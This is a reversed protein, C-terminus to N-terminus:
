QLLRRRFRFKAGQKARKDDIGNLLPLLAKGFSFSASELARAIDDAQFGIEQAAQAAFDESRIIKRQTAVAGGPQIAIQASSCTSDRTGLPASSQCLAAVSADGAESPKGNPEREKANGKKEARFSAVFAWLGVGKRGSKESCYTAVSDSIPAAGNIALMARLDSIEIDSPDRQELARAAQKFHDEHARVLAEPTAGRRTLYAVFMEDAKAEFASRAEFDRTLRAAM